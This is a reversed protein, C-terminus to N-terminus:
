TASIETFKMGLGHVTQFAMTNNSLVSDKIDPTVLPSCLAMFVPQNGYHDRIVPQIFHGRIHMVQFVSHILIIQKKNCGYCITIRSLKHDAEGIEHLTSFYAVDIKTYWKLIIPFLTIPWRILVSYWNRSYYRTTASAQKDASVALCTWAASSPKRRWTPTLLAGQSSPKFWATTVNTLSTMSATAKRWWTLRYTISYQLKLSIFM